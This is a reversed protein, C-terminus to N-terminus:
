RHDDIYKRVDAITDEYRMKIILTNRGSESRVRLTAVNHPTMPRGHKGTIEQLATNARLHPVVACSRLPRGYAVYVSVSRASNETMVGLMLQVTRAFFYRTGARTCPFPPRCWGPTDVVVVDPREEPASGHLLDSVGGRVEIVNGSRIVSRPLAQLHCPYWACCLPVHFM